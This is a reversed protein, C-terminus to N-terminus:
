SKRYVSAQVTTFDTKLSALTEASGIAFIGGPRLLQHMRNVLRERTPKDFYIMVNRCFIVDFPGKMPWPEMLNLRGVTVLRRVAPAVKVSGPAIGNGRQFYTSVLRKDLGSVMAEPYTAEKATAVASNSLDTALIRLDWRSFSPLCEMAHMALSYPECGTSCAASWIRIARGPLTLTGRELPTYFERELYNFHDHERFFSTVNTSLLDFFVLMDEQDAEHDLHSLYADVDAFPSKRLFSALRNQVLQVKKDTLHLGWHERAIDAIRQFQHPALTTM